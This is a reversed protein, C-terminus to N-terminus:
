RKPPTYLEIANGEPDTIFYAVHPVVERTPVGKAALLGALAEADPTELIVRGFGNPGAPRPAKLLALIAGPAKLGMVYEFPAGDRRYTATVSMGLTSIYWARQAELDIVNLGSGAIRAPMLAPDLGAAAGAHAEAALGLLAVATLAAATTLDTM